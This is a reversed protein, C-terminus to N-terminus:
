RPDSFGHRPAEILAFVPGALGLACLTAGVIDVHPRPGTREQKPIAYAALLGTAIAIPVNILFVWRWSANTVLWGGILPGIIFAIGTWATWTGIAAGREEGSFTAALM